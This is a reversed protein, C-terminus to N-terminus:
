DFDHADHRAPFQTNEFVDAKFFRAPVHWFRLLVCYPLWHRYCLVLQTHIVIGGRPIPDVGERQDTIDGFWQRTKQIPQPLLQNRVTKQTGVHRDQRGTRNAGLRFGGPFSDASKSRAEGGKVNFHSLQLHKRYRIHDVNSDAAAAFLHLAHM